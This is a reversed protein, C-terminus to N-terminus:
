RVSWHSLLCGRPPDTDRRILYPCGDQSHPAGCLDCFPSFFMMYEMRLRQQELIFHTLDNIVAVTDSPPPM